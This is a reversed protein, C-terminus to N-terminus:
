PSVGILKCIASGSPTEIRAYFVGGSGLETRTIQRKHLGAEMEGQWSYRLQGKADYIRLNLREHAPLYFHLWTQETFPNPLNTLQMTNAATEQKFALEVGLWQGARGYAEAPTYGEAMIRLHQGLSGDQLARFHLTFLPENLAIGEAEENWSATLIGSQKFRTGFHFARLLGEDVSNLALAAVDWQLTFQFGAIASLEQATFSVAYTSDKYVRQDLTSIEFVGDISREEVQGLGTVANLNVDGIKIAIFDQGYMAGGLDNINIVEPFVEQWPNAPNPFVYSAPVFRWSTNDAFDADIFLILRRLQILDYTTITKSNNIDAAIMKYPSNLPQVGLIHKTMLLLDFTSVGNLPNTDLFPAVTYDYGQNLAAFQYAGDSLTIMSQSEGGSLQVQVGAVPEDEETIVVGAIESIPTDGCVSFQNDQVLVYTECYDYNPGGVTGNPQVAYPNFAADWAYIRVVQHPRDDCTLTITNANPHPLETIRHISYKIPASCDTIPSALFSNVSLTNVGTDIDGDGDVDAPPTVPMLDVALGNICIPAPAKCDVVDFPMHAENVNGCGDEVILYFSHHGIPVEWIAKFKPYQGSIVEFDTLDMDIVGDDGEDLYIHFTLDNPTCTEFLLFLYEIQADCGVNDYSCFPDPPSFYIAPPTNDYVKIIQTYEWYGTSPTSRWYGAPNTAGDCATPKTGAAPLGNGELSDRDIYALGNERRLVWVAEDGPQGDCDEDRSIVVPGGQGNYECWNIVRYTRFIKYCEDGSASFFEDDVSVALLDCAEEYYHITDPAPIGCNASVDAPFRIDYHHTEEIVVMQQCETASQNGSRDRARFRRIIVGYGCDHLNVVPPLEVAIAGPCNDNATAVGFLAQLQTTDAAEFGYPLDDCSVTVQHPATCLPRLKDEVKVKFWCVDSLGSIDTIQLEVIVSDGVDCCTFDVFNAWPTYDPTVPECNSDETIQRRIQYQAIGCNDWSGEDAEFAFLRGFGQGGVSINLGDNCIAVPEVLDIVCFDCEVVTINGCEDTVTYRLRHCGVPIGSVYREAAGHPVSALVITEAGAGTVVETLVTWDSCNDSVEPLPAWFTAM